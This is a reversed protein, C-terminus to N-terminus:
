VHKGNYTRTYVLIRVSRSISTYVVLIHIPLARRATYLGRIPLNKGITTLAKQPSTKRSGFTYTVKAHPRIQSIYEFELAADSYPKRTLKNRHQM